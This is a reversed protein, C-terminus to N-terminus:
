HLSNEFVGLYGLSPSALKWPFCVQSPRAVELQVGMGVGPSRHPRNSILEGAAVAKIIIGRYFGLLVTDPCSLKQTLSCTSISAPHTTHESLMSAGLREEYRARHVEEM